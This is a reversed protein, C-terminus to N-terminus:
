WRRFPKRPITFTGTGDDAGILPDKETALGVLDGDNVWVRQLFEFQRAIIISRSRYTGWPPDVIRGAAAGGADGVLDPKRGLRGQRLRHDGARQVGADRGGPHGAVLDVAGAGPQPGLQLGAADAVHQRDGAVVRDPCAAGV